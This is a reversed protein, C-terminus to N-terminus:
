KLGYFTLSPLFCCFIGASDVSVLVSSESPLFIQFNLRSKGFNLKEIRFQVVSGGSDNASNWGIAETDLSM